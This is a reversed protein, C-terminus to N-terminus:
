FVGDRLSRSASELEPRLVATSPYNGLLDTAVELHHQGLKRAEEYPYVSEEDNGAGDANHPGAGEFTARREGPSVLNRTHAIKILRECDRIYSKTEIKVSKAQRETSIDFWIRWANILGSTRRSRNMGRGKYISNRLIARAQFMITNKNMAELEERAALFAGSLENWKMNSWSIFRKTSEDLLGRRVIRGYRSVNRLSGRCTPCARINQSPDFPHSASKIATPIGETSVDYFDQLGMQGDMTSYTLFHGCDPFICPEEDLNVSRCDSLMILDVVTDKIEDSACQQCFKKDPCKEGCVSPRCAASPTRVALLAHKKRALPAPSTASSPASPTYASTRAPLPARNNRERKREYSEHAASLTDLETQFANVVWDQYMVIRERRKMDWLKSRYLQDVPRAPRNATSGGRLCTRMAKKRSRRVNRVTQWGENSEEDNKEEEDNDDDYQDHGFLENYQQLHHTYLYKWIRDNANLFQYAQLRRLVYSADSDLAEISEYFDKGEMKTRTMDRVVQRLNVPELRESKSRSGIRVINKVCMIPGLKAKSKNALLVKILAEGTYSKGTGPPGQILAFSRNLCNLIAEAQKLDLSSHQSLAAPDPTSGGPTYSLDTSGDNSLCTLDFSFGPRKSYLPSDIPVQQDGAHLTLLNEFPLDLKQSMTQLAKLPPSFAPLLISPFEFLQRHQRSDMGKFWSLSKEVGDVSTDVLRLRVFAYQPDDPLSYRPGEEDDESPAQQDHQNANHPTRVTSRSVQFFLVTGIEDVICVLAGDTLRKAQVWWAARGLKNLGAAARPQDVRVIFELGSWKDFHVKVAAAHDYVIVKTRVERVRDNSEIRTRIANRLDHLTDERLLRFHRDLLGRLGPLHHQSPNATPLYEERYSMIEGVTPMLKIDAIDAHDNDHRRGRQSLSGPLDQSLIFEAMAGSSASVHSAEPLSQGIGLRRRVRELYKSAQITHFDEKRNGFADLRMQSDECISTFHPAPTSSRPWCEADLHSYKTPTKNQSLGELVDKLLLLRRESAMDRIFQQALSVDEEVLDAAMRFHSATQRDGALNPAPRLRRWTELKEREPDSPQSSSSPRSGSPQGNRHVYDQASQDHSFKCSSGFRCGGTKLWFRCPDAAQYPKRNGMCDSPLSSSGWDVFTTPPASITPWRPTVPTQGEATSNSRDRPDEM